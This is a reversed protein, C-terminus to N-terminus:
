QSGPLPIAETTIEAAINQEAIFDFFAFNDPPDLIRHDGAINILKQFLDRRDAAIGFPDAAEHGRRGDTAGIDGDRAPLITSMINLGNAMNLIAVKAM